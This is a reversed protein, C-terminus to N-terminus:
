ALNVHLIQGTDFRLAKKASRWNVVPLQKISFRNAGNRAMAEPLVGGQKLSFHPLSFSAKVLCLQVQYHPPRNCYM